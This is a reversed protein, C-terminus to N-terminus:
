GQIPRQRQKSWYSGVKELVLLVISITNNEHGYGSFLSLSFFFDELFSIKKQSLSLHPIDKLAQIIDRDIETFNPSIRHFKPLNRHFETLNTEISKPSIQYCNQWIPFALFVQSISFVPSRSLVLTSWSFVIFLNWSIITM